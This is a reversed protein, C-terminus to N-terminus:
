GPRAPAMRREALPPLFSADFLDAPEIKAKLKLNQTLLDIGRELRLPIVGGLGNAQTEETVINDRIVMRLRELEIDKNANENRKLVSEVARAPSRITEQLGKLFARLFM